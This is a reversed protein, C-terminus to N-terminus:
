DRCSFEEKEDYILKGNLLSWFFVRHQLMCKNKWVWCFVPCNQTWGSLALDAKSAFINESNSIYDWVDKDALAQFVFLRVQLDHLQELAIESLAPSFIM